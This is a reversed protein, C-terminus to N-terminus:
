ILEHGISDGKNIIEFPYPKNTDCEDMWFLGEVHTKEFM